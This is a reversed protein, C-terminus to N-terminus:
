AELTDPDNLFFQKGNVSFIMGGSVIHSVEYGIEVLAFCLLAFFHLWFLHSSIQTFCQSALLQFDFQNKEPSWNPVM